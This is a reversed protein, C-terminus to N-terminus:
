HFPPPLLIIATRPLCQPLALCLAYEPRGASFGGPIDRVSEGDALVSESEMDVVSDSFQVVERLSVGCGFGHLEAQYEQSM